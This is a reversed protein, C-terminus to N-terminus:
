GIFEDPLEGVADTYASDAGTAQVACADIVINDLTKGTGGNYLAADKSLTIGDFVNQELGQTVKTATVNDSGDKTGWVYLGNYGEAGDYNGSASDIKIWGSNWNDITSLVDGNETDLGVNVAALFEDCGEVKIFVYCDAVTDENSVRVQPDKKLTSAPELNKYENGKVRDGLPNTIDTEDLELDKDQIGNGVTFTNTVEGTNAQLLALTGGVGVAAVLGLTVGLQVFQKKKM